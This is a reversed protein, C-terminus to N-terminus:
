CRASIDDDSMSSESKKRQKKDRDDDSDNNKALQNNLNDKLPILIETKKKRKSGRTRVPSSKNSVKGM